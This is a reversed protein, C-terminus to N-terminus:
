VVSERPDYCNVLDVRTLRSNGVSIPNGAHGGRLVRTAFGVETRELEPSQRGLGAVDIEFVKAVLHRDGAVLWGLVDESEAVLLSQMVPGDDAVLVDASDRAVGRGEARALADLETVRRGLHELRRLREERHVRRAVGLEPAEHRRRERRSLHGPDLVANAGVRLLDDGLRCARTATVEDLQDGLSQWQLRDGVHETDGFGIALADHLRRVRQDGCRVGLHEAVTLRDLHEAAGQPRQRLEGVLEGLVALLMRAVVQHRREHLGLDVAVPQSVGLDRREQHQQGHGAVVGGPM